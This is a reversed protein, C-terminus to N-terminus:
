RATTFVGRAYVHYGHWLSLVWAMVAQESHGGASGARKGNQARSGSLWAVYDAVELLDKEAVIEGRALRSAVVGARERDGHRKGVRRVCEGVARCIFPLLPVIEALFELVVLELHSVGRVNRESMSRVRPYKRLQELHARIVREVAKPGITSADLGEAVGAEKYSIVAFSRLLYSRLQDRGVHELVEDALYAWVVDLYEDIDLPCTLAFDLVDAMIEYLLKWGDTGHDWRGVVAADSRSRPVIRKSSLIDPMISQLAHMVEHTIGWHRRLTLAEAVPVIIAEENHEFRPLGFTICGDWKRGFRAIISSVFAEFGLLVRQMSIGSPGPTFPTEELGTYVGESRQAVAREVIALRDVIRHREFTSLRARNAALLRIVRVYGAIDRYADSILSNGVLNNYRYVMSVVAAGEPGHSVLAEAEPRTMSLMLYERRSQDRGKDAGSPVPWKCHCHLDTYTKFLADANQARFRDLLTVLGRLSRIRSLTEQPVEFDVDRAGLRINAKVKPEGPEGGLYIEIKKALESTSNPKCSFSFQVSLEGKKLYVKDFLPVTFRPRRRRPDSLDLDHGLMSLTKVAFAKGHSYILNALDNTITRLITGLSRASLLVVAEFWGLTGLFQAAPMEHLLFRAFTVEPQLGKAEVLRPNIKLFCLGLLPDTLRKINFTNLSGSQNLDWRYCVHELSGTVYPLEGLRAFDSVLLSAPAQIVVLDYSGFLRFVRLSNRRIGAEKARKEILRGVNLEEGPQVRLLLLRVCGQSVRWTDGQRPM